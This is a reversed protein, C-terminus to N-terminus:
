LADMFRSSTQLYGNADPHRAWVAQWDPGAFVTKMAADRAALSPWRIVWSVNASGIPSKQPSTGSIEPAREGGDVWFGVVDLHKRLVPVALEAWERYASILDRRYHYDRIEYIV